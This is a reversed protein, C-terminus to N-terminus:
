ENWLDRRRLFFMYREYRDMLPRKGAWLIQGFNRYHEKAEEYSNFTNIHGITDHMNNTQLCVFQEKRLNSLWKDSMHEASTNIILEFKTTEKIKQNFENICSYMLKGSAGIPMLNEVDQTVTKFKWKNHLYRQLLVEARYNSQADIDFGRVCTLDSFNEYLFPVLFGYWSGYIAISNLNLSNLESYKKLEEVLWIKSDVQGKSLFDNLNIKPTKKLLYAIDKLFYDEIKENLYKFLVDLKIDKKVFSNLILNIKTETDPTIGQSIENIILKRFSYFDKFLFWNKIEKFERLEKSSKTYKWTLYQEIGYLFHLFKKREEATM